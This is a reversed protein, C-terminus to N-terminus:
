SLLIMKRKKDTQKQCKESKRRVYLKNDLYALLYFNFSISYKIQFFFFFLFIKMNKSLKYLSVYTM